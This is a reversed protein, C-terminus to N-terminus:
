TLLIGVVSTSSDNGADRDNGAELGATTRVEWPPAAAVASSLQLLRVEGPALDGFSCALRVGDLTCARSGAGVMGWASGLEPLEAALRVDEAIGTGVDGVVLVYTLRGPETRVAQRVVADGTLTVPVEPVTPRSPEVPKVPAERDRDKGGAGERDKGKRRDRRDDDGDEDREDEDDREDGDDRDEEDGRDQGDRGKQERPGRGDDAAVGLAAMLLFALLILALVRRM